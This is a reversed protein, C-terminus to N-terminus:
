NTVPRVSQGYYRIEHYPNAYSSCIYLCWADDSFGTYLSSSWYYGDTGVNNLAMGSRYGAAPLFLTAGNNNSTFLLGYVGNQQKWETTCNEHLEQCDDKTPMRWSGGWQYRAADDEAELTTLADTSYYKTLSFSSGNFWTYNLWHYGAKKGDKWTLPDQSSYYPEIEGWAFYDGYEEPKSAGINCTAWKLGSPLGLDVYAYERPPAVTVSVPLEYTEGPKLTIATTNTWEYKNDEVKFTVTLEGASITQPVLIAEYNATAAKNAATGPSYTGALPSIDSKTSDKVTVTVTQPKFSFGANSGKVVFDEVPNSNHGFGADYFADGLTLVFNVKSLSHSLTVPLVGNDTDSYKTQTRPLTLLDASNLKAQTSQDTPLTLNVGDAFEHDTFVHNGFYAACYSVTTTDNQWFLPKVTNWATSTKSVKGSFSYYDEPFKVQLYFEKLDTTQMSAKTSGEVSAQIKMPLDGGNATDFMVDNDCSTLLVALTLAATPLITYTKMKKSM